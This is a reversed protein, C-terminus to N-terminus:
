SPSVRPRWGVPGRLPFLRPCRQPRRGRIEGPAATRWTVVADTVLAALAVLYLPYAAAMAAPSMNAFSTVQVLINIALYAGCAALLAAALGLLFTVPRGALCEAGRTFGALLVVPGLWAILQALGGGIADLTKM